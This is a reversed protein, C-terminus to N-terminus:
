HALSQLHRLGEVLKLVDPWWEQELLGQAAVQDHPVADLGALGPDLALYGLDDLEGELVRHLLDFLPVVLLDRSLAAVEGGDGEAM